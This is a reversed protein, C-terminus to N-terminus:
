LSFPDPLTMRRAVDRVGTVSPEDDLVLDYFRRGLRVLTGIRCKAKHDEGRCKCAELLDTWDALVQRGTPHDDLTALLPALEERYTTRLQVRLWSGVVPHEPAVAKEVDHVLEVAEDTIERASFKWTDQFAEMFDSLVLDFKAWRWLASALYGESLKRTAEDRRHEVAAQADDAAGVLWFAMLRYWDFRRLIELAVAPEGPKPGGQADLAQHLDHSMVLRESFNVLLERMPALRVTHYKIGLARAASRLREEKSGRVGLGFAYPALRRIREERTNLTLETIVDRLVAKRTERSDMVRDLWGNLRREFPKLGMLADLAGDDPYEVGTKTLRTLWARVEDVLPDM